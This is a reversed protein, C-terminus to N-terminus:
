TSMKADLEMKKIMALTAQRINEQTTSINQNTAKREKRIARKSKNFLRSFWNGDKDNQIDSQEQLASLNSNMGKISELSQKYENATKLKDNIQNLQKNITAEDLEKKTETKGTDKGDKDKVKIETTKTYQAISSDLEAKQSILTNKKNMQAFGEPCQQELQNAEEIQKQYNDMEAKYSGGLGDLNDGYTAKFTNLERKANAKETLQQQKTDVEGQKNVANMYDNFAKSKAAYEKDDKDPATKQTFKSLLTQYQESYSQGTINGKDDVTPETLTSDGVTVSGITGNATAQLNNITTKDTNFQQKLSEIGAEAADRKAIAQNIVEASVKENTTQNTFEQKDINDIQTQLDDSRKQAQGTLINSLEKKQATLQEIAANVESLEAAVGEPSSLYSVLQNQQVEQQSGQTGETGSAGSKKMIAATLFLSGLGLATNIGANIAENKSSSSSTLNTNLGILNVDAYKGLNSPTVGM